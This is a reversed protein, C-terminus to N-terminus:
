IEFDFILLWIQDDMGIVEVPAHGRALAAQDPRLILVVRDPRGNKALEELESATQEPHYMIRVKGFRSCVHRRYYPARGTLYERPEAFWDRPSCQLWVLLNDHPILMDEETCFVADVSDFRPRLWDCARMLDVRRAYLRDPERNFAGFFYSAFLVHSVLMWITGVLIIARALARSKAKALRLLATAGVAGALCLGIIGPFSRIPHMANPDSFLLDGTPFLILLVLAIRASVSRRARLMLTVAGALLLPLM